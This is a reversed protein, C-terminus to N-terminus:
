RREARRINETLLKNLPYFNRKAPAVRNGKSNIVFLGGMPGRLIMRGKADKKGTKVNKSMAM